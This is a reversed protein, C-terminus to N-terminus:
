GENTTVVDLIEQPLANRAELIIAELAPFTKKTERLLKYAEITEEFLQAFDKPVSIHYHVWDDQLQEENIRQLSELLTQTEESTLAWEKM